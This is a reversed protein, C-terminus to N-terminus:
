LFVFELGKIRAIEKSHRIFVGRVFDRFDWPCFGWVCFGWSVFALRVQIEPAKTEQPKEGHLKQVNPKQGRGM